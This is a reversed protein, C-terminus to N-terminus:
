PIKTAMGIVHHRFLETLRDRVAILRHAPAGDKVWWLNRFAGEIQRQFHQQLQPVVDNNIM